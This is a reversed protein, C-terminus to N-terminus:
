IHSASLDAGVFLERESSLSGGLGVGAAQKGLKLAGAPGPGVGAETVDDSVPVFVSFAASSAAKGLTTQSVGLQNHM